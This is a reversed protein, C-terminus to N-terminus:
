IPMMRFIKQQLRLLLRPVLHVQRCNAQLPPRHLPVPLVHDVTAETLTTAKPYILRPTMIKAIMRLSRKSTIILTLVKWRRLTQKLTSDMRPKTEVTPSLNQRFEPPLNRSMVKMKSLLISPAMSRHIGLSRRKQLQRPAILSKSQETISLIAIKPPLKRVTRGRRAQRNPTPLRATSLSFTAM